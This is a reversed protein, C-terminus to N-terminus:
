PRLSPITRSTKLEKRARACVTPQFVRPTSNYLQITVNLLSEEGIVLLTLAEIGDLVIPLYDRHIVSVTKITQLVCIIILGPTYLTGLLKIEKGM